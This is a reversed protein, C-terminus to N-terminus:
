YGLIMEHVEMWTNSKRKKQANLEKICEGVFRQIKAGRRKFSKPLMDHAIEFSIERLVEEDSLEEGYENLAYPPKIGYLLDQLEKLSIVRSSRLSDMKGRVWANLSLVTEIKGCMAQVGPILREYEEMIAEFLRDDWYEPNMGEPEKMRLTRAAQLTLRHWEVSDNVALLKAHLANWEVKKVKM